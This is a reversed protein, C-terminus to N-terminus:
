IELIRNQDISYDYDDSKSEDLDSIDENFNKIMFKNLDGIKDGLM